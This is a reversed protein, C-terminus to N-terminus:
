ILTIKAPLSRRLHVGHEVSCGYRDLKILPASPGYGTLSPPMLALRTKKPIKARTLCNPNNNSLKTRWINAPPARHQGCTVPGTQIELHDRKFEAGHCIFLVVNLRADTEAVRACLRDNHLIEFAPSRHGGSQNSWGAAGFHLKRSWSRRRKRGRTQVTGLSTAETPPMAYILDFAAKSRQDQRGDITERTLIDAGQEALRVQDASKTYHQVLGKSRPSTRCLTDSRYRLAGGDPLSLLTDPRYRPKQGGPYGSTNNVHTKVNQRQAGRHPAERLNVAHNDDRVGNIHDIEYSPWREFM